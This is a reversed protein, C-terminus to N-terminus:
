PSIKEKNINQSEVLVSGEGLKEGLTELDEKEIACIYSGEHCRGKGIMEVWVAGINGPVWFHFPFPSLNKTYNPRKQPPHKRYTDILQM